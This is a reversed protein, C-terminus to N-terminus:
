INSKLIKALKRLSRYLINKVVGESCDLVDAIDKISYHEFYRLSVAMRYKKNLNELSQLLKVNMEKTTYENEQNETRDPISDLSEMELMNKNSKIWNQSENYAIRIIWTKFQCEGRFGKLNQYVKLFITQMVDFSYDQNKVFQFVIRYVQQEYRKILHEFFEPSDNKIEEILEIDTKKV